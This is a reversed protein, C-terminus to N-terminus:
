QLIISFNLKRRIKPKAVESGSSPIADGAVIAAPRGDDDVAERCSRRSVATSKIQKEIRHPPSRRYTQALGREAVICLAHVILIRGHCLGEEKVV